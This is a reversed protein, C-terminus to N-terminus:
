MMKNIVDKSVSTNARIFRIVRKANAASLMVFEEFLLEVKHPERTTAPMAANLVKLLDPWGLGSAKGLVLMGEVAGQRVINKVAKVPVECFVALAEIMEATQRAEAYTLIRKRLRHPDKPMLNGAGIGRIREAETRAVQRSVVSLVETIRERMEPTANALLRRKVIETARRVLQEFLEPPLDKRNAVAEALDEDHEARSAVKTFALLSFRAGVNATVKQAVKSTGREILIDTVGEGIQARGAIASLHGQSKTKAIEVLDADTLVKSKELVPGSILIDDNRSLEGVVKIPANNVPALRGSLEILAQREIKEILHSMVDDFIVVHDDPLSEGGQLFLDTLRRLINSRQSGSGHNLASEIAVILSKPACTAENQSPYFTM